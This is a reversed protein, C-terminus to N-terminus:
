GFGRWLKPARRALGRSNTLQHGPFATLGAADAEFGAKIIGGRYRLAWNTHFGRRKGAHLDIVELEAPDVLLPLEAMLTDLLM